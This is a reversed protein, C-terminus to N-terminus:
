TFVVTTLIHHSGYASNAVLWKVSKAIVSKVHDKVILLSSVVVGVVHTVSLIDVVGVAAL